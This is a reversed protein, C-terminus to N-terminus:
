CLYLIHISVFFLFQFHILQHISPHASIFSTETNPKLSQNNKEKFERSSFVCVGWVIPKTWIHKISKKPIGTYVHFQVPLFTHISYFSRQPCYNECTRNMNAKNWKIHPIKKECTRNSNITEKPKESGSWCLTKCERFGYFTDTHTHTIEEKSCADIKCSKIIDSLSLYLSLLQYYSENKLSLFFGCDTM